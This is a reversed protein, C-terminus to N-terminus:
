ASEVVEIDVPEGSNLYIVFGADEDDILDVPCVELVYEPRPLFGFDAPPDHKQIGTIRVETPPVGVFCSSGAHLEEPDPELRWPTNCWEYAESDRPFGFTGGWDNDSAEDVAFWPWEILVRRATTGVVRADFAESSLRLLDGVAYGEAEALSVTNVM